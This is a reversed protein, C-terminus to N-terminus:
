RGTIQGPADPLEVQDHLKVRGEAIAGLAQDRTAFRHVTGSPNLQSGALGLLMEHKPQPMTKDRDRISFLLKSPLLREKADKLAEDLIPLHVSMTNSLIVGDASMFTEYGPVTLDYGDEKRGTYEVSEVAAWEVDTNEVFHREWRSVPNVTTPDPCRPTEELWALLGKAVRESMKGDRLPRAVRPVVGCGKRYLEADGAFPAVARVGDRVADSRKKDFVGDTITDRLVKKARELDSGAEAYIARAECLLESALRRTILGRSRSDYLQGVMNRQRKRRLKTKQPMDKETSGAKPCPIWARLVEAVRTPLPIADRFESGGTDSVATNEFAERKWPSELRSFLGERKADFSSVTSSWSTNGGSTEKSFGVTARIGLTRCLASFERVLRLSTSSFVCMLQPRDKANSVCCTGDTDMLGCILGERFARPATYAFGPIRKNASGSSKDCRAGGLHEALFDVFVTISDSMFSYKVTDGYRTDGEIKPTAQRFRYPTNFLRNITKTVAEAVHGRLDALMVAKSSKCGALRFNRPQKDWWGDGCLAGLLYGFDFDLDVDKGGVSVKDWLVPLDQRSVVPVCVGATLAETPTFRRFVPEPDSPCVGYVARPDNDTIIQRRNTLNVIEVVRGPHESYFSVDAWVLENVDEDFALVQTGPPVNYFHIVGNSGEKSYTHDTRPFDELDSIVVRKDNGQVPILLKQFMDSNISSVGLDTWGKQLPLDNPIAAFVTNIQFDGDYDAGLGTSVYPNILINKDERIQPWFSLYNFHHWAPSRASMVPRIKTEEIMARRALPDRNRELVLARSAPIGAAILRRRIFPQYLEWAMDEPIGIEDLGLDPDPSIVARGTYDQPKSLLKSQVFSTKPGSGLIKDMLGSVKRKHLKPNPSDDYGFAARVAKRVYKAADPDKGLVADAQDQIKRARILDSVLENIDGPVFTEGATSYPRFQPPIVPVRDIVLDEPRVNSRQLGDVARLLKVGAQRKTKKGSRIDELAQARLRDLDLAKLRELIEM